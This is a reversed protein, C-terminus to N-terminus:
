NHKRWRHVIEVQCVITVSLGNVPEEKVPKEVADATGVQLQKDTQMTFPLFACFTVIATPAMWM